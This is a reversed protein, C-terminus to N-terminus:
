GLTTEITGSATPAFLLQGKWNFLWYVSSSMSSGAGAIIDKLIGTGSPTGDSIWPELGTVLDTGIMFLGSNFSEITSGSTFTQSAINVTGATTGDTKWLSTKDDNLTSDSVALFYTNGNYSAFQSPYSTIPSSNIDRLLHTGSGTGDSVWPEQGTHGNAASFYIKGNLVQLHSMETPGPVRNLSALIATGNETGDTTWFETGYTDDKALFVVKSGLSQFDYKNGYDGGLSSESGARIDKLLKSGAVTGDSIFPEIGNTPTKMPLVFYSPTVAVNIPVFGQVSVPIGNAVGPNLDAFLTPAATGDTRWLEVGNTSDYGQFYVANNFVFPQLMSGDPVQNAPDDIAVNGLKATGGATGDTAWVGCLSATASANADFFRVVFKSGVQKIFDVKWANTTFAYGTDKIQTWDAASAGQTTYFQYSKTGGSPQGLFIVNSGAKGVSTLTYDMMAGTNIQATGAPTGDTYAMYNGVGSQHVSFYFRGTGDQYDDGRGSDRASISSILSMGQTGLNFLYVQLLWPNGTKDEKIIVIGNAVVGWKAAFFGINTIFTGSVTGDTQLVIEANRDVWLGITGTSDFKMWAAGWMQMPDSTAILSYTGATTGDSRWLKGDSDAYFLRVSGITGRYKADAPLLGNVSSIPLTGTSSGDSLYSVSANGPATATFYLSNDQNAYSVPESGVPSTRIITLPGSSIANNPVVSASFQTLDAKIYCGSLFLSFSLGVVGNAVPKLSTCFAM